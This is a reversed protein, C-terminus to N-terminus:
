CSRAIYWWSHPPGVVQCCGSVERKPVKPFTNRMVRLEGLVDDLLTVSLLRTPSAAYLHRATSQHSVTFSYRRACVVAVM